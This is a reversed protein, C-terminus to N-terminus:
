NALEQVLLEALYDCPPRKSKASRSLVVEVPQLPPLGEATGLQILHSPMGCKALPAIALGADVMSVLGQVAPSEYSMRYPIKAQQLAKLAHARATSGQGFVAIPLPREKWIMKNSSSGAWVLPEMRILQGPCGKTRTICALDVTNDKVMRAIEHSPRGVVQIEVRPYTASFKRLVPPLLSSAYDDPVGISVRGKVEPRTIEAFAEDRLALMQRAYGLLTHGEATLELNRTDRVFLAKGLLTELGKIQMSVASPSRHVQMAGAAFSGSDAVAVLMTLSDLDLKKM